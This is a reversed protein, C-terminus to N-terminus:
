QSIFLGSVSLHFTLLFGSVQFLLLLLLEFATFLFFGLMNNLAFSTPLPLFFGELAGLFALLDRSSATSITRIHLCLQPTIEKRTRVHNLSAQLHKTFNLIWTTRWSQSFFFLPFAQHLSATVSLLCLASTNREVNTRWVDAATPYTGGLFRATEIGKMKKIMSLYRGHAGADAAM